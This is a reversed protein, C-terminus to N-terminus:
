KCRTSYRHLCKIFFINILIPGGSHMMASDMVSLSHEIGEQMRMDLVSHTHIHTYTHTHSTISRPKIENCKSEAMNAQQTTRGGGGGGGGGLVSPAQPGPPCPPPSCGAGYLCLM